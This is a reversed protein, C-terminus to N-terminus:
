LACDGGGGFPYAEGGQASMPSSGGGRKRAGQACQSGTCRQGGDGGKGRHAKHCPARLELPVICVFWPQGSPSGKTDRKKGTGCTSTASSSRVSVASPPQRIHCNVLLVPRDSSLSEDGAIEPHGDPTTPDMFSNTKKAKKNVIAHCSHRRKMKNDGGVSPVVRLVMSITADM